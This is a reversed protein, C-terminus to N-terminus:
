RIGGVLEAPDGTEVARWIRRPQSYPVGLTVGLAEWARFFLQMDIEDGRRLDGALEALKTIPTELGVDYGDQAALILRGVLPVSAWVQDTLAHRWEEPEEPLRRNSAFFIGMSSMTMGTITLGLKYWDHDRFRGPIDHSVIGWINNLQNSFMQFWNFVENRKFARALQTPHNAPQTRTTANRARNVAEQESFGARKASQYVAMWGTTTAMRDMAVLLRMGRAGYRKLASKFAADGGAQLEAIEREVTRHKMYPDKAQVYRIAQMPNRAVQLMASMWHKAGAEPLYLAYSPLQKLATVLNASLYAIATNNRLWRSFRELEGTSRNARPDAFDAVWRELEKLHEPSYRAEVSRRFEKDRLHRQFEDVVEASHIYHEQAHMTRQHVSVLRLNIPKQFEEPINQRDITFGAPTRRSSAQYHHRRLIEDALEQKFIAGDLEMRQFPSYRGGVRGLHQGTRKIHADDLRSYEAEYDDLIAEGLAIEAPTLQEVLEQAVSLDMGNGANLALDGDDQQLAAWM